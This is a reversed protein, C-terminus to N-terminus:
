KRVIKMSYLDGVKTEEENVVDNLFETGYAKHDIM